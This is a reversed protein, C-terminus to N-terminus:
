HFKKQLRARLAELESRKLVRPPRQPLRTSPRPAPVHPGDETTQTGEQPHEKDGDTQPM